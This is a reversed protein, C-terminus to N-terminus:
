LIILYSFINNQKRYILRHKNSNRVCFSCHVFVCQTSSAYATCLEHSFDVFGNIKNCLVLSCLIPIASQNKLWSWARTKVCKRAWHTKMWESHTFNERSLPMKETERWELKQKHEYSSSACKFRLCISINFGLIYAFTWCFSFINSFNLSIETQKVRDTCLKSNFVFFTEEDARFFFQLFYFKSKMTSSSHTRADGVWWPCTCEFKMQGINLLNSSIRTEVARGAGRNWINYVFKIVDGLDCVNNSFFFM